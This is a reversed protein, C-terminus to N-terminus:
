THYFNNTKLKNKSQPQLNYCKKLYSVVKSFPSSIGPTSGDIQDTKHEM